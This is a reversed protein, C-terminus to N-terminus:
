NNKVKREESPDLKEVIKKLLHIPLWCITTIVIVKLLFSFTIYSVDFYQRLIVISGIYVVVSFAVSVIMKFKVKNVETFVNLLEIFILATFTISVINM